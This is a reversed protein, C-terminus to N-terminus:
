LFYIMTHGKRVAPKLNRQCFCHFIAHAMLLSLWLVLISNPHHSFYHDAHWHTVFENFGENEIKWRDHGFALITQASALSQPMTTAWLWHSRTEEIEWRGGRRERKITDEVSWVVRLPESISETTFGEMDRLEIKRRPKNKEFSEPEQSEMLVRAERLLEPQNEKIVAIFHKGRRRLFDLMSPRLYIADATLVDFCRPHNALVRELLRLGAAVEDEGPRQLELDLLLHFGEGIIQFVVIRHYYQVRTRGRVELKRQLCESCCRQYSSRLEHGDISALMWGRNPGLVKNRRLQTYIHGQCARLDDVDLRKSVYALADASPLSEGGLWRRWNRQSRHQELENFSGLRCIFM